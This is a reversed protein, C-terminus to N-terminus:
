EEKDELADLVKALGATMFVVLGARRETQRYKGWMEHEALGAEEMEDMCSRVLKPNTSVRLLDSFRVERKRALELMMRLRGENAAISYLDALRELDEDDVGTLLREDTEELSGIPIKYLVKGDRVLQLETTM